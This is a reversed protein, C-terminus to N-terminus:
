PAFHNPEVADNVEAGVEERTLERLEISLCRSCYVRCETLLVVVESHACRQVSGIRCRAQETLLFSERVARRQGM